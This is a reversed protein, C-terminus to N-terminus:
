SLCPQELQQHQWQREGPSDKERERGRERERERLGKYLFYWLSVFASFCQRVHM